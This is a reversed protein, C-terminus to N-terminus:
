KSQRRIAPVLAPTSHRYAIYSEGFKEVLAAEELHIRLWLAPFFFFPTLFLTVWAHGLLALAALELIMSLYAPHRVFRFPGSHVLEHSERIEIHLSWFRGLAAIARRRVWFSSLACIWGLAFIWGNLERDVLLLEAISGFFVSTGIFLFLKLTLNERVQGPVTERKTKLELIRASYVAIM